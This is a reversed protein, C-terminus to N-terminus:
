IESVQYNASGASATPIKSFCCLHLGQQEFVKGVISSLLQPVPKRDDVNDPTVTINLVGCDNVVLHLKFGFFWDVSTKDRAALHKFVRHQPIRRNHCVKSLVPPILSHFVQVSASVVKCIAV